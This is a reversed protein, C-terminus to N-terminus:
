SEDDLRPFLSAGKTVIAGPPLQSWTGASEIRQAALPGLNAQGGIQEWLSEMAKPMVPNYLVAIARLAECVTNLVTLDSSCM